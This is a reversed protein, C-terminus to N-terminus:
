SAGDRVETLEIVLAQEPHLVPTRLGIRGLSAGDAILGDAIWPPGAIQQAGPGGGLPLVEVRYRTQETLGPLPVAPPLEFPSSSLQVYSFVAHGGDHAVVGHLQSSPDLHDGNVVRGGHLLPRLRRYAAVDRALAELRAGDLTTLDWEIGLHGFLATASRFALSHRRGTTHSVDSAIHAGVLEPPLLLQTWRQIQQRELPDITDSAWVRDTRALIGLDVRGGGSACTEIEVGPHRARLEDLLRYLALTQARVGPRGGDHGPDVLDRNHDWKLYGIEHDALLRDLRELLHDFCAENALDLVHQSRWTTPTRGPVQLMWEPHARFLDSDPNVMEPEVWIGFEMGLGTVHEILPALGDPWVDAAVVWDGLGRTDDRRGGFWGDDLVFREVGVRAAVDALATLRDLRHNFYVAEWTNLIVKRPTQPHGARARVRGHWCAALGDLGAASYAALVAPAGYSEGPALRVEGAELREGASLQALGVPSREALYTSQGSWAHHVAWVEGHRFGFDPTGAVLVTPSDHGTRGRRGERVWSGLALRHRQPARERCWRGTLDLLEDARSPLPLAARLGGLLYDEDGENTLTQEISLVGHEDIRLDIELALGTTEDALELRLCAPAAHEHARLVLRPSWGTGDARSGELWPRLRWGDVPMPVLPTRLRTDPAAHPIPPALALAAAACDLEDPLASGWHLVTPMGAHQPLGGGLDVLLSVGGGRLHAYAAAAAGTDPAAAALHDTM